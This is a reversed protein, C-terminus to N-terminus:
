ARLYYELLSKVSTLATLLLHLIKKSERQPLLNASPCPYIYCTRLRLDPMAQSVVKILYSAINIITPCTHGVSRERGCPAPLSYAVCGEGGTPSPLIELQAIAFSLFEPSPDNKHVSKM